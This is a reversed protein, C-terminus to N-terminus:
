NLIRVEVEFDTDEGESSIEILSRVNVYAAAFSETVVRVFELM